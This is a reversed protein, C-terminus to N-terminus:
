SAAITSLFNLTKRIDSLPYAVWVWWQYGRNTISLSQPANPVWAASHATSTCDIRVVASRLPTTSTISVPYNRRWNPIGRTTFMSFLVPSRHRSSWTMRSRRSTLLRRLVLSDVLLCLERPRASKEKSPVEPIDWTDNVLSKRRLYSCGFGTEKRFQLFWSLQGSSSSM